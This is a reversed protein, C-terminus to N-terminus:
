AIIKEVEKITDNWWDTRDLDLEHALSYVREDTKLSVYRAKAAEFLRGQKGDRVLIKIAEKLQKEEKTLNSMKNEKPKHQYSLVIYVKYQVIDLM